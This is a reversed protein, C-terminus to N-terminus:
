ITIYKTPSIKVLFTPLTGPSLAVQRCLLVPEKMLMINHPSQWVLDALSLYVERVCACEDDPVVSMWVPPEDGGSEM